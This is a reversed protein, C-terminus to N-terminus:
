RPESVVDVFALKGEEKVVRLARELAPRLESMQSIPGEGYCDFSRALTAFDVNPDTIQTGIGANEVPRERHEAIQIGHEESNYLSRNNHLVVLMPVHHHAATWLAGPGFLFDGDAQLNVTLRNTNRAALAAGISAGMGYGLGAGGSGGLYQYPERFDWLRRAWGRLDGNVVWWDEDKIVEGLEAAVAGVSLPSRDRSAEAERRWRARLDRHRDAWTAGRTSFRDRAASNRVLRERVLDVLLPLGVSTDAAINMDTPVQRQYDGTWSRVLLDNVGLSVVKCDAPQVYETTRLVRNVTTLAGYPDQVDLLLVVDAERLADNNAGSADLPHTTPMNFRGGQDLVPAGLAEALAVLAAVADPNRGVLDAVLVPRQSSALVDALRELAVPDPALKTPTSFQAPDPIVLDPDARMEQLETDFCVYVPATPETTAVKYARTLSEASAGLSPPQDDWKVFDRVLNGQVLATHIWDIRPRRRYPDVPGTGGLVLIPVRDVWANFIAMTAHQLGVVNHAIAVMPKGTAKAYGHAIAVSIEEHCCEIPEPFRTDGFNVISDHIGRFSSGPNFAAFEIGLARLIEVIYDSGFEAGSRSGGLGPSRVADEVAM